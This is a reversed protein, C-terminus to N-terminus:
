ASSSKEDGTAAPAAGFIADLVSDDSMARAFHSQAEDVALAWGKITELHRCLTADAESLFGLACECGHLTRIEHEDSFRHVVRNRLVVLAKLERALAQADEQPTEITLTTTFWAKGAAAAAAHAEAQRQSLLATKGPRSKPKKKAPRAELEEPGVSIRVVDELFLDVVEGLGLKAVDAARRSALSATDHGSGAAHHAVIIAKLVREAQQSRLLCRGLLRQVERNAAVYDLSPSPADGPTRSEM